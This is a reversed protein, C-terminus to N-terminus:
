GPQAVGVRKAPSILPTGGYGDPPDFNSASGPDINLATQCKQTEKGKKAGDPDRAYGLYYWYEQGRRDSKAFRGNEPYAADFDADFAKAILDAFAIQVPSAHAKM